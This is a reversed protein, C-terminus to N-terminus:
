AERDDGRKGAAQTEENLLVIRDEEIGIKRQKYLRGLAKKYASKSVGFAKAVREAPSKDTLDSTGGRESLDALIRDALMDLGSVGPPLLCLYIRRDARISKIYGTLRQGYRLESPADDHYLLGLHTDDVVAKYGLDSRGCILLDVEQGPSFGTGDESLRSHLRTTGAMRGTREDLYVLVVYSRGQELPTHQESAPVLLDKGLGWDVFAGFATVSVVKLYACQGLGARPPITSGTLVNESDRYLFVSVTDGVAAGASLERRPVFVEGLSGGDLLAGGEVLRSIRLPETTGIRTM